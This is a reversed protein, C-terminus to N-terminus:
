TNSIVTTTRVDLKIICVLLIVEGKVLGVLLMTKDHTRLRMVSCDDGNGKVAVSTVRCYSKLQDKAVLLKRGRSYDVCKNACRAGYMEFHSARSSDFRSVLWIAQRIARGFARGM